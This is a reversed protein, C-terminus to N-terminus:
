STGSRNSSTTALPQRGPGPRPDPVALLAGAVDLPLRGRGAASEPVPALALLAALILPVNLLFVARGPPTCSRPNRDRIRYM